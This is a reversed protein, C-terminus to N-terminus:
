EKSELHDYAISFDGISADVDIFLGREYPQPPNFVHHRSPSADVEASFIKEGAASTGDYVDFVTKSTGARINIWYIVGSGTDLVVDVSGFHTAPLEGKYGM